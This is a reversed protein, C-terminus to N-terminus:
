FTQILGEPSRGPNEGSGYVKFLSDFNHKILLGMSYAKLGLKKKVIKKTKKKKSM